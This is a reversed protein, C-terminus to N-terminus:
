SNNQMVFFEYGYFASYRRYLSIEDRIEEFVAWAIKNARYKKKLCPLEKEIPSYYSNFWASEPLTFNSILNFGEEKITEVKTEINEIDPYDNEFYQIVEDPPNPAIYVLETLALYGNSKLLQKCRRLGNRFGMLYLAGESWIIDFTNENYDMELMSLNRPVIKEELGENRAQKTLRDLFPQHNDLAIIEGNSIKALEITQVGPGCGIDLIVPRKPPKPIANYARKTFENDGPGCRPLAECLEHLYEIGEM